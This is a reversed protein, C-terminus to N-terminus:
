AVVTKLPPSATHVPLTVTVAPADVDIPDIATVSSGLVVAAIQRIPLQSPVGSSNLLPAFRAFMCGESTRIFGQPGTVYVTPLLTVLLKGATCNRPSLAGVVIRKSRVDACSVPCMTFIPTVLAY